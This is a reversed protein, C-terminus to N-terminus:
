GWRAGVVRLAVEQSFRGAEGGASQRVQRDPGGDGEHDIVTGGRRDTQASSRQEDSFGLLDAVRSLAGHTSPKALPSPRAAPQAERARIPHDLWNRWAANWDSFLSGAKLHHDRFRRWQFRFEEPSLGHEAADRAQRENPQTDESISTKPKKRAKKPASEVLPKDEQQIKEERREEERTRPTSAIAEGSDHKELPKARSAGSATGGREGAARRASSVRERDALEESVRHNFLSGNATVAIKGAAILQNVLTTAKTNGCRFIGMLMRVSNPVPGGVDYMAHCLRLYAAEQELTLDVTGINWARFDMKYFEGKM